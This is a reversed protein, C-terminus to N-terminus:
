SARGLSLTRQFGSTLHLKKCRKLRWLAFATQERMCSVSLNPPPEAAALTNKQFQSPVYSRGSLGRGTLGVSIVVVSYRGKTFRQSSYLDPHFYTAKGRLIPLVRSMGGLASKWWETM